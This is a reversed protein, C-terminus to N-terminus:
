LSLFCETTQRKELNHHEVKQHFEWQTTRVDQFSGEDQMFVPCDLCTRLSGLHDFGEVGSGLGKAALFTVLRRGGFLQLSRLSSRRRKSSGSLECLLRLESWDVPSGVHCSTWGRLNEHPGTSHYGVPSCCANDELQVWWLGPYVFVISEGQIENYKQAFMISEYDYVRGGECSWMSKSKMTQLTRLQRPSFDVGIVFAKLTTVVAACGTSLSSFFVEELYCMARSPLPERINGTRKWETSSLLLEMGPVSSLVAPATWRQKDENDM